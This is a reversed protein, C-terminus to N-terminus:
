SKTSRLSEFVSFNTNIASSLMPLFGPLVRHSLYSPLHVICSTRSCLLRWLDRTPPVCVQYEIEILFAYRAVALLSKQRRKSYRHAGASKATQSDEREM